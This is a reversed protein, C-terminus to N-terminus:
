KSPPGPIFMNVRQQYSKYGPRSKISYYEAPVAGTYHVLCQYMIYSISLLGALLLLKILTSDVDQSFMNMLSPITTIILSNWVMWEGFYNPHRCYRWLGVECVEGKVKREQCDKIFRKKQKDATHEWCLSLFWLSWGLMEVLSLPENYGTYVQALMPISLPGMNAVAQVFIEKQLVFKFGLSSEDTYGEKAWVLRQYNYRAFEQSFGGQFLRIAGGLAMRGGAMLFAVMLLYTRPSTTDPPSLIPLLGISILGWPWAIDVYSMRGTIFAPIHATIIFVIVQTIINTMVVSSFQSLLLAVVTPSCM